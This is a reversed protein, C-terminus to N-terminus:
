RAEIWYALRGLRRGNPRISLLLVAKTVALPLAISITM